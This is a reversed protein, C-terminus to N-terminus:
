EEELAEDGLLNVDDLDDENTGAEEDIEEGENETVADAESPAVATPPIVQDDETAVEPDDKM